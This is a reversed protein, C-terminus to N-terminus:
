PGRGGRLGGGRMRRLDLTGERVVEGQLQADHAEDVGEVVHALQLLGQGQESVGAHSDLHTTRPSPRPLYTSRWRHGISNQIECEM